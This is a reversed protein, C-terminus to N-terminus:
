FGELRRNGLRVCRPQAATTPPQGLEFFVDVRLGFILGDSSAGLDVWVERTKTDHREAPRDSFAQKPGMMPSLRVVRGKFTRGPLGDATIQASTGVQIRPADLEEVFARVM